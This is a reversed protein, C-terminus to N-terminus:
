SEQSNAALLRALPKSVSTSASSSSHFPASACRADISAGPSLFSHREPSKFHDCLRGRLPWSFTQTVNSKPSVSLCAASSPALGRSLSSVCNTCHALPMNPMNAALQRSPLACTIPNTLRGNPSVPPRRHTASHCRLFAVAATGSARLSAAM